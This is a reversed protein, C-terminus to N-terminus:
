GEVEEPYTFRIGAHRAPTLAHHTRKQPIVPLVIHDWIALSMGHSQFPTGDLAGSKM